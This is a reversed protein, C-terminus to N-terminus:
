SCYLPSLLARVEIPNDALTEETLASDPLQKGNANFVYHDGPKIQFLSPIYLHEKGAGEVDKIDYVVADSGSMTLDMDVDCQYTWSLTMKLAGTHATVPTIGNGRIEGISGSEGMLVLCVDDENVEEIEVGGCGARVYEEAVQYIKGKEGQAFDKVRNPEPFKINEPDNIHTMEAYKDKCLCGLNKPKWQSPVKELKDLQTKIAAMIKTKANDDILVTKGFPNIYEKDYNPKEEDGEKLPLGMYFTFAHVNTDLGNEVAKWKHGYITNVDSDYVYNSRPKTWTAVNDIDEWAIKRVSCPTMWPLATGLTAIRPVKDNNWDIRTTGYKIDESMPSAISVAEFYKQMWGDKSQKGLSKYADLTFLNGQSHAVVLVKHGNIISSKYKTVQAEVDADHSPSFRSLLWDWDLKQLATELYDWGEGHTENYSYGVEGIHKNFEEINGGYKKELIAPKLVKEANYQADEEKTLIGNAFYVDTLCENIASFSVIPYIWVLLLFLLEKM